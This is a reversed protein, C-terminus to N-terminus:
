FTNPFLILKSLFIWCDKGILGVSLEKVKNFHPLTIEFCFSILMPFTGAFITEMQYMESLYFNFQLVTLWSHKSGGGYGSNSRICLLPIKSVSLNYRINLAM